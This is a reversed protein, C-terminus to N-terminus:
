RRSVPVTPGILGVVGAGIGVTLNSVATVQGFRKTLGETVILLDTVVVSSPSRAGTEEERTPPAVADCRRTPVAM